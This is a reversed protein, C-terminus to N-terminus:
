LQETIDADNRMAPMSLVHCHIAFCSKEYSEEGTAAQEGSTRTIGVGARANRRWAGFGTGHHVRLAIGRGGRGDTHGGVLSLDIRRNGGRPRVRAAGAGNGVGAVSSRAQRGIAHLRGGFGAHLLLLLRSDLVRAHLLLWAHLLLRPHLLINLHRAVNLLLRVRHRLLAYLLLTHLLLRASNRRSRADANLLLLGLLRRLFREDLPRRLGFLLGRVRRNRGRGIGCWRGGVARGHLRLLRIVIRRGARGVLECGTFSRGFGALEGGALAWGFGAFQCRILGGRLLLRGVLLGGPLLHILSILRNDLGISAAREFPAHRGLPGSIRLLGAIPLADLISSGSIAAPADTRGM